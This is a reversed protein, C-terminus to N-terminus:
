RMQFLEQHFNRPNLGHAKLDQRLARGLGVPGCFWISAERWDPVASRLREGSLLGDKADVLLHLQVGAAKADACLNDIAPQSFDATPHFLDIVHQRDRTQALHKMRAIFPTIGIGGGIWIQRTGRDTFTFCGYPGEVMIPDGINLREPLESTHDGLAKAFVTLRREQSDWASAITYPHAGERHDTTLFAFQGPRHGPWGDDVAINIELARLEPYQILSEIRGTVKHDAGVRKLLITVSAAIGATVMIAMVIGIPQIWYRFDLLVVTHFVLVLYLAALIIHTKAFLRYPFRKILALVILVVAAYFTWEGLFEAVRRQSRLLQELTGLTQASGGGRAPRTLWGWGVAWKTGKAWIWHVIGFVLAAIGLWKHLRYTKDLGGLPPEIAKPRAALVMAFSMVGIAIVGTYQVLVRRLPFYGFPQPAFTDALLWLVTLGTLLAVFVKKIPKM